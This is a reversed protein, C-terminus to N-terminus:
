ALDNEWCYAKWRENLSKWFEFGKEYDLGDIQWNFTLVTIKNFVGFIEKKIIVHAVFADITKYEKRIEKTIFSYIGNDKIFRFLCKKFKDKM